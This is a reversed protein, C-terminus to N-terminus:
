AGEKVPVGESGAVADEVYGVLLDERFQPLPKLNLTKTVEHYAADERELALAHGRDPQVPKIRIQMKITSIEEVGAALCALRLSQIAFLTRV